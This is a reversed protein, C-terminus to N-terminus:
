RACRSILNTVQADLGRPAVRRLGDLLLFLSTLDPPKGHPLQPPPPWREDGPDPESPETQMRKREFVIELAGDEFRAGRTAYAALPPPLMITRKQTGVRVIVELGIKRLSLEGREAFPVEVRLTARGNDTALEQSVRDHLLASPDAEGFVTSGLRDLMEGGVVEREFYPASLVPVPSFASTVLGLQEEQTRAM